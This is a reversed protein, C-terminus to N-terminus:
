DPGAFSYHDSSSLGLGLKIVWLECMELNWSGVRLNVAIHLKYKVSQTLELSCGPVNHLFNIADHPVTSSAALDLM